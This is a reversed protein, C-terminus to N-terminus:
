RRGSPARNASKKSKSAPKPDDRWALGGFDLKRDRHNDLYMCAAKVQDMIVLDGVQETSADALSRALGDLTWAERIYDYVIARRDEHPIRACATWADNAIKKGHLYFAM